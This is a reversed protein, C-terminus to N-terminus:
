DQESAQALKVKAYRWLSRVTAESVRRHEAIWAYDRGALLHAAVDREAPSLKTWSEQYAILLDMSNANANGPALLTAIDLDAFARTGRYLDLLLYRVKFFAMRRLDNASSLEERRTWVYLAADQLIEDADTGRAGGRKIRM